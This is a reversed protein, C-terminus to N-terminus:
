VKVTLRITTMKSAADVVRVEIRVKKLKHARVEHALPRSAMLAPGKVTVTVATVTPKFGLVLHGRVRHVSFSGSGGHPRKVSVGTHLSKSKGALGIGSPLVVTVSGVAPANAGAKVSFTLKPRRSGIGSLRAKGAMPPGPKHVTWTFHASAANTAADRASITVTYAGPTSPHGSILGGSSASLGRPLGTVTYTLPLGGSDSGRLQLSVASGISSVQAAPTTLRVTYVPARLGCLAAALADGHMSGLGTAMDYGTRLPYLGGHTGAADNNNKGSRPSANAIDEFLMSGSSGGALKYLSPNAFGITTGRCTQSANVLAVYGTWLSVAASTGGLVKWVGHGYVVYGSGGDGDAAVDPVERCDAAGCSGGSNTNIVGLSAAAGSQYSPMASFVSIGGGTGTPTSNVLQNNWIAELATRGEVYPEGGGPGNSYLTTGGVATVNPDSAPLQTGFNSGCQSGSDGSSALISQGQVAAEQTVTAYDRAIQASTSSECTVWSSSIVKARDESVIQQFDQLQSVGQYVLIQAAPAVSIVTEIDLPGEDDSPLTTGVGGGVPVNTVSASMQYCSEYTAVDTSLYPEEDVLAITQGAGVDGAQYLGSFGYVSALLDATYGARYALNGSSGAFTDAGTKVATSCPQPGGTVIRPRSKGVRRLAAHDVTMNSRTDDLDDLGSVDQVFPAAAAALAPASRNAYGTRGGALRVEVISTAFAREVQETTGSVPVALGNASVRGVHIGTARLAGTVTAIAAPRAGFQRAFEGVTLFRGYSSSGPRSVATALAALGGPDRPKLAVTLRLTKGAPLNGTVRAHAPLARITGVRESRSVAAAPTGAEAGLMM